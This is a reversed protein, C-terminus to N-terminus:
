GQITHRGDRLYNAVRLPSNVPLQTNNIEIRYRHSDGYNFLRGQVMRDPSPKIRMETRKDTQRDTARLRLLRQISQSSIQTAIYLRARTPLVAIM